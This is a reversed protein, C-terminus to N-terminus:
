AAREMANRVLAATRYLGHVFKSYPLLLFLSLVAGLHVALAIGMAGTARLALLGMGTAAVLVLLLILGVESGLLARSRPAPDGALKLWLLGAGGGIMGIGGVTGLLVPLSFFRYPAPWGLLHDYVTAVSTAALCLMFGYALAHHAHRRSQSFSEDIDNCGYGGGGLNKLTAADRLGQRWHAWGPRGGGTARWFKATGVGLALVAFGFAVSTVAVMAGFPIVEYFGRGPVVAHASVAGGGAILGTLALVLAIAGATALAVVTGNRRYLGALARPWAHEAYSEQRVEAFVQPVNIGYPHPPAFQCAHYCGMCGHCLNALQSLDGAAFDRRLEMAPFVACYGECYRCANCVEM